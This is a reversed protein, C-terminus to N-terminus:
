RRQLPTTSKALRVRHRRTVATTVLSYGYVYATTAIAVAQEHQSGCFGSM